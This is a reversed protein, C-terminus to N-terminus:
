RAAAGACVSLGPRLRLLACHEEGCLLAVMEGFVHLTGSYGAAARQLMGGIVDVFRSQDPLGNVMFLPLMKEAELPIYHSPHHVDAPPLVGRQSLIDELQALHEATAIVIGKEGIELASGNYGSLGEMLFDDNEYFQVLHEHVASM